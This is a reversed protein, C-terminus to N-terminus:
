EKYYVQLPRKFGKGTGPSYPVTKEEVRTFGVKEILFTEFQDPRFSISQFTQRMVPTLKSKRTYSRWPQPELIFQGGKCLSAYIRYFFSRMGDDGKHLHIWKTISLAMIVNYTNPEPPMRLWDGPHFNINLPFPNEKVAFSSEMPWPLHGFMVPMSLPFLQYNTKTCEFHQQHQQQENFSLYPRQLSWRYRLHRWAQDILAEDIDVGLIRAPQYRSAIETTVYGANCGIDLVQRGKFWAPDMVSVRPDSGEQGSQHRYGYYHRYNGFIFKDVTLINDNDNAHSKHRKKYLSHTNDADEEDHTAVLYTTAVPLPLAEVCPVTSGLVQKQSRGALDLQPRRRQQRSNASNTSFSTTPENWHSLYINSCSSASSSEDTESRLSHKM